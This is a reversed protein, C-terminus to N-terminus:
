GLSSAFKGYESLLAVVAKEDNSPNAYGTYILVAPKPKLKLAARAVAFGIEEAEINLDSIIADFKTSAGCFVGAAMSLARCVTM